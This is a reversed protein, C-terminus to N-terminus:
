PTKTTVPAGRQIQDKLNFAEQDRVMAALQSTDVWKSSVHYYEGEVSMVCYKGDITHNARYLTTNVM